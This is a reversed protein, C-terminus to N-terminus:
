ATRSFKGGGDRNVRRESLWRCRENYKQRGADGYREIFWSLTFRGKAKAKQKKKTQQTHHKGYMGNNAGRNMHSMKDVFTKYEESNRRKKWIDGSGETRYTENYGGNVSDYKQIYEAEVVAAEGLTQVEGLVEILFSHSGYKRIARHITRDLKKKMAEHRHQAVRVSIRQETRGVYCKGSPFTLRYIKHM